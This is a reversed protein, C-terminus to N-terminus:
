QSDLRESDLTTGLLFRLFLLEALSSILVLTPRFDGRPALDLACLALFPSHCPRVRCELPERTRLLVV